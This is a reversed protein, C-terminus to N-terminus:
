LTQPGLEELKPAPGAKPDQGSRLAKCNVLMDKM